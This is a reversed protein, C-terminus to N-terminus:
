YDDDAPLVTVPLRVRFSGNNSPGWTKEDSTTTVSHNSYDIGRMAVIISKHEPRFTDAFEFDVTIPMAPLGPTLDDPTDSPADDGYDISVLEGEKISSQHDNTALFWRGDPRATETWINKATGHVVLEQIYPDDGYGKKRQVTARDLTLVYAGNTFHQGPQLVTARDQRTRFGGLAWIAVLVLVIVLIPIGRTMWKSHRPGPDAPFDHVLQPAAWDQPPTEDIWVRGRETGDM